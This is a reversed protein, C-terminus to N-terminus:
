GNQQAKFRTMSSCCWVTSVVVLVVQLVVYPIYSGLMDYSRGMAIFGVTNGAAVVASFLGAYAGYDQASLISKALFPAFSVISAISMGFVAIFAYVLLYSNMVTFLAAGGLFFGFGAIITANIGYKDYLSGLLIKGVASVLLCMGLVGASFDAPFGRDALHAAISVEMPYITLGLVFCLALAAPVVPLSFFGRWSLPQQKQLPTEEEAAPLTEQRREYAFLLIPLACVVAMGATFLYSGSYGFRAINKAALPSLLAGGFSSGAFVIGMLLGAARTFWSNMIVTLTTASMMTNGAGYIVAGVYFLWISNAQSYLVYAAAMLASGCLMMRGTGWRRYIRGYVLNGLLTTVSRISFILSFETRSVGLAETVPLQYVSDPLAISLLILEWFFCLIFIVTRYGDGHQKRKGIM